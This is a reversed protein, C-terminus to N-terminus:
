KTICAKIATILPIITPAKINPLSIIQGPGVSSSLYIYLILNIIVQQKIATPIIPNEIDIEVPNLSGLTAYFIPPNNENIGIIRKRAKFEPVSLSDILFYKVNRIKGNGTTGVIIIIAYSVWLDDPRM